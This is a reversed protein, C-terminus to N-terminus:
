ICPDLRAWSEGLIATGRFHFPGAMNRGLARKTRRPRRKRGSRSGSGPAGKRHLMRREVAHSGGAACGVLPQGPETLASIVGSRAQYASRNRRIHNFV